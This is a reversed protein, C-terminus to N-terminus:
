NFAPTNFLEIVAKAGKQDKRNKLTLAGGHQEIINRSFALGIGQGDSKTSYFPVFLNDPNVIGTGNDAIEIISRRQEQKFSLHVISASISAEIANKVLNIIVQQLLTNDAYVTLDPAFPEIIITANTFLPPIKHLLTEVTIVSKNLVLTQGLQSYQKVFDQLATSRESVTRLAHLAPESLPERGLEVEEVLTQTLSGIPTLSNRIEHSLVRIIQQWSVEQTHRLVKAIDTMIVLHYRQDNDKFQSHRLQWQAQNEQDSFQWQNNDTHRFGLSICNQGKVSEWPQGFFESFSANAHSLQLKENFVVIPTNLQEILRYVLFMNEDYRSKRTQLEERLSASEHFLQEVIGTSFGSNAQLSYDELRIAEIMNTMRYFPSILRQYFKIALLCYLPFLVAFLSVIVLVSFDYALLLALILTTLLVGAFVLQLKLLSELSNNQKSAM